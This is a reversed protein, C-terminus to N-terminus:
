SMEFSEKSLDQQVDTKIADEPQITSPRREGPAPSQTSHVLEPSQTTRDGFRNFARKVKRFLSQTFIEVAEYRQRHLTQARRRHMKHLEKNAELLELESVDGKLMTLYGM